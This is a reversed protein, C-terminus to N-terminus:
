CPTHAWQCLVSVSIVTIHPQPPGVVVIVVCHLHTALHRREVHVASRKDASHTTSRSCFRGDGFCCGWSSWAAHHVLMRDHVQGRSGNLKHIRKPTGKVWSRPIPLGQWRDVTIRKLAPILRQLTRNSRQDTAGNSTVHCTHNSLSAPHTAFGSPHSAQHLAPPARPACRPASYPYPTYITQPAEHRRMQDAAPNLVASFIRRTTGQTLMVGHVVVAANSRMSCSSRLGISCGCLQAKKSLLMAHPSRKSRCVGFCRAYICCSQICCSTVCLCCGAQKIPPFVDLNGDCRRTGVKEWDFGDVWGGSCLHVGTM